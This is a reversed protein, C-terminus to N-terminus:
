QMLKTNQCSFCCHNKTITNTEYKSMNQTVNTENKSMVHLLQETITNTEYKSLLSLLQQVHHVLFVLRLEIFLFKEELQFL